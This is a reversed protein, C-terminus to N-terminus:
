KSECLTRKPFSAKYHTRVQHIEKQKHQNSKKPHSHSLHTFSRQIFCIEDSVTYTYLLPYPETGTLPLKAPVLGEGLGVYGSCKLVM